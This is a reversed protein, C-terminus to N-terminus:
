SPTSPFTQDSHFARALVGAIGHADAEVEPPCDLPLEMQGALLEDVQQCLLPRRQRPLEFHRGLNLLTRQRVKAGDRKSRVLRHTHYEAGDTARTRTRRVFM